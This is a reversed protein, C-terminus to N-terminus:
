NRINRFPYMKRQVFKEPNKFVGELYEAWKTMIRLVSSHKASFNREKIEERSFQKVSVPIKQGLLVPHKAMMDAIGEESREWIPM